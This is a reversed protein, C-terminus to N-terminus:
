QAEALKYVDKFNRGYGLYDLGYGVIFDNPIKQGIYQIDLEKKLSDPKVLFAAISVSAPNFQKLTKMVESITLGTDVIDEVLILHRNQVDAELGLVEEVEGTSEMGEYSAIKIFSVECPISIHKLLDSAFMFAGNLIPIFIPSKGEFDVSIQAGLQEVTELIAEHLIFPEFYKDKVQIKM